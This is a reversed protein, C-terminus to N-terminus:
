EIGVRLGRRNHGHAFKRLRGWKNYKQFETGCGCACLTMPNDTGPRYREERYSGHEHLHISNRPQLELNEIRNDRKDGNVHHVVEWPWLYRNLSGEMVLRHGRVYGDTDSFPHTSSKILVYGDSSRKRGGRWLSNAERKPTHRKRLESITLIELNSPHSNQTDGDRFVVVENGFLRRGLIREALIRHIGVTGDKGADPHKPLRLRKPSKKRIRAM